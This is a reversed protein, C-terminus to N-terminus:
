AEQVPPEAALSLARIRSEEVVKQARVYSRLAPEVEIFSYELSQYYRVESLIKWIL